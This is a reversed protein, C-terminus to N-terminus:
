KILIENQLSHCRINFIFQADPMAELKLIQKILPEDEPTGM